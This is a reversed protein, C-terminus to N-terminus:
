SDTPLPDLRQGRYLSLDDRRSIHMANALIFLIFLSSCFIIVSFIFSDIKKCGRMICIDLITRLSLGFMRLTVTLTQQYARITFFGAM